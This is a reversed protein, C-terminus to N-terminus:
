VPVSQTGLLGVLLLMAVVPVGGARMSCSYRLLSEFAGELHGLLILLCQVKYLNSFLRLLSNVAFQARREQCILLAALALVFKPQDGCAFKRM